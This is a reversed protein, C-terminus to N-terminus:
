KRVDEMARHRDQHMARRLPGLRKRSASCRERPSRAPWTHQTIVWTEAGARAPRRLLAGCRPCCLRVGGPTAAGAARRHAVAADRWEAMADDMLGRQAARKAIAWKISALRAWLGRLENDAPIKM